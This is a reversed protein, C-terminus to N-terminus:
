AKRYKRFAVLGTLGLGLLAFSGPEPVQPAATVTATASYTNTVSGNRVLDALVGQFSQGFQSTFVIRFNSTGDPTRGTFVFDASSQTGNPDQNTFTFPSTGGPLSPTCTQGTFMTPNGCESSSGHGPFIFNLDLSPLGTLADFVILPLQPFTSGVPEAALNLNNIQENGTLGAFSGTGNSITFVNPTLGNPSAWTITTNTVTIRGALDFTGVPGAVAYRALGSGLMLACM